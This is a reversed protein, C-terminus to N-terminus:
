HMKMRTNLERDTSYKFNTPVWSKLGALWSDWSKQVPFIMETLQSWNARCSKKVYTTDSIKWLIYLRLYNKEPQVIDTNVSQWPGVQM